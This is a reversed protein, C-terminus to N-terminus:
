RGTRGAECREGTPRRSARTAAAATSGTAVSLTHTVAAGSEGGSPGHLPGSQGAVQSGGCLPFTEPRSAVM